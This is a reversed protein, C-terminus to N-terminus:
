ETFGIELKAGDPLNEIQRAFKALWQIRDLMPTPHLVVKKGSELCVFPPFASILEGPRLEEGENEMQLLPELHLFEVPDARMQEYFQEFTLGTSKLEGSESFLHHVIGERLIFQDGMCDQGFPVDEPKIATFLKFLANEGTWAEALSHWEPEDCIGRM